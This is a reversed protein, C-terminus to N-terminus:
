EVRRKKKIAEVSARLAAMLDTTPTPKVELPKGVIEQGAVKRRILESIAEGYTDKFKAVDFEATLKDILSVALRLEEPRIVVLKKLEELKEMPIVEDKYHLLTMILGRQYPRIAVLHEKSRFVVKGIAAKATTELVDKFLSYAKEGGEQPVLYYNHEVFLPDIQGADVFQLIEIAKTSKLQLAALEAKEIVVYQGKTVQYGKSIDEWAVETQCTPCWRKYSLPTKCTTHLNHFEVIRDKAAIYMKVPINVLGLSISGTWIARDPM